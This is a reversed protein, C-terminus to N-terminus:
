ALHVRATSLAEKGFSQCNNSIYILSKNNLKNAIDISTISVNM